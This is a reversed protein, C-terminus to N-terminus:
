WAKHGAPPTNRAPNAHPRPVPTGASRPPRRQHRYRRRRTRGPSQPPVPPWMGDLAPPKESRRRRRPPAPPATRPSRWRRHRWPAGYRPAAPWPAPIATPRRLPASRTWPCVEPGRHRASFGSRHQTPRGRRPPPSRSGPSYRCPADGGRLRVPFPDAPSRVRGPPPPAPTPTLASAFFAGRPAKM